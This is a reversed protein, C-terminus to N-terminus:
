RRCFERLAVITKRDPAASVELGQERGFLSLQFARLCRETQPGCQGDVKIQRGCTNCGNMWQQAGLIRARSYEDCSRGVQEPEEEPSRDPGGGCPRAELTCSVSGSRSPACVFSREEARDWLMWQSGYKANVDRQWNSVAEAMAAGEGKMERAFTPPRYKTRGAAYLKPKCEGQEQARAVAPDQDRDVTQSRASLALMATILM